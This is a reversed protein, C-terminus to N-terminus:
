LVPLVTEAFGRRYLARVVAASGWRRCAIETGVEIAVVRAEPPVPWSDRGISRALDDLHVTQEVIRTALYDSLQMVAGGTVTIPQQPDLPRLRSELDDLRDRVVRALSAAGVSAVSAGRERIARHDDATAASAFRAFYAAASEVTVSGTPVAADLYDSVIWIGGRALHGALGGVLQDELVSPRDWGRQVEPDSIASVILRANELFVTTV